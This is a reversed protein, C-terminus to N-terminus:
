HPDADARATAAEVPQAAVRADAFLRRGCTQARLRDPADVRGAPADEAM